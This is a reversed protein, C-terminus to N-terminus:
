KTFFAAQLKQIHEPDKGSSHIENLETQHHSLLKQVCIKTETIDKQM